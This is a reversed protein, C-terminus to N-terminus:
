RIRMYDIHSDTGLSGAVWLGYRQPTAAVLFLECPGHTQKARKRQVLTAVRQACLKIGGRILGTSVIFMVVKLIEKFRLVKDFVM